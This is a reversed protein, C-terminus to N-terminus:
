VHLKEVSILVVKFYLMEHFDTWHSILQEKCVWPRDSKPIKLIRRFVSGTICAFM